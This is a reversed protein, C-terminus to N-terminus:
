SASLVPANAEAMEIASTGAKKLAELSKQADKRSIKDRLDNVLSIHCDRLREGSKCPCPWHGKVKKATIYELYTTIVRLDPTKLLERSYQFVGKAGHAWHGFPWPQGAEVLSQALFFSHLPGTLFKLLPMGTPWLRWREDPLLVCATGDQPNIHRDSVHPIRGGVERVLPLSKPHDRPLQLEVSYRDLVQGEFVIVFSGRVCVIDGVLVFHLDPFNAEVDAKERDYLAPNERHWILSM